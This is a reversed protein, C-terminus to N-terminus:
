VAVCPHKLDSINLRMGNDDDNDDFKAADTKHSSTDIITVLQFESTPESWPLPSFSKASFKLWFGIAGKM